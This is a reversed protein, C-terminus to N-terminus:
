NSSMVNSVEWLVLSSYKKKKKLVKNYFVSLDMALLNFWPCIVPKTTLSQSIIPSFHWTHFGYGPTLSVVTPLASAKLCSVWSQDRFGSGLILGRSKLVTPCLGFVVMHSWDGLLCLRCMRCWSRTLCNNFLCSCLPVPATLFCDSSSSRLLCCGPCTLTPCMPLPWFSLLHFLLLSLFLLIFNKM